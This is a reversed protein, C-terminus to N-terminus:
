GNSKWNLKNFHEVEININYKSKIHQSLMEACYVSRHQGGTCGFAVYLNSFNRQIYKEITQDVIAFINNLFNKVEQEKDLFEIVTKNLGSFNEFESFKGPNPLARCDFVFGGGNGTNDKPIETLYSFSYIKICLASQKFDQVSFKKLEESVVMRELVNFLTPIKVNFDVNHLLWSLNKLAYPISKLFHEKKEYFGRFGYAGLAQLIRILVFSYYYNKFEIENYKTKNAVLNYYYDLLIQRNNNSLDAKADYLLSAVDYFIAGSRGGQYDIYFLEDEKLMINRSQFDRYLFNNSEADSLYKVFSQFDNELEQEDFGIKALKLFYYKFYNLDWMMSQVDFSSRPFCFSYDLNKSGEFQFKTLDSLINKYITIINSNFGDKEKNEEIFNFLTVDGLDSLIYIHEDINSSIIKPVNLNLSLFHKTFHIFALNEKPEPNYAGIYTKEKTFLRFYKRNSGSPPLQKINLVIEGTSVKLLETFKNEEFIEKL